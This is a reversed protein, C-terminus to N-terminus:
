LEHRLRCQVLHWDVLRKVLPNLLWAFFAGVVFPTLIPSVLYVFLAFVFFLGLFNVSYKMGDGRGNM